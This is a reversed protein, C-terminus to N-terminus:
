ETDIGDALIDESVNPPAGTLVVLFLVAVLAYIAERRKVLPLVMLLGVVLSTVGYGGLLMLASVLVPCLAFITASMFPLRGSVATGFAHAHRGIVLVLFFMSSFCVALPVLIGIGVGGGIWYMERPLVVVFASFDALSGVLDGSSLSAMFLRWYTAGDCDAVTCALALSSRWGSDDTTSQFRVSEEILFRSLGPFKPPFDVDFLQKTENVLARRKSQDLSAAEWRAHFQSVFNSSFRLPQADGTSLFLVFILSLTGGIRVAVRGVDM